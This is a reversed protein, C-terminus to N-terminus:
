KKDDYIESVEARILGDMLRASITEGKSVDKRSKIVDTTSKGRTVIAYGRELTALPSLSNLNRMLLGFAQKNQELEATMNAKLQSQKQQLELKLKEMQHRPDTLKSRTITFAMTLQNLRHLISRSMRQQHVEPNAAKLKQLVLRSLRLETTDVQQQHDQLRHVPSRLRQMLHKQSQALDSVKQRISKLLMSEYRAFSQIWETKDPSLIEAAASPTPARLDAVYDSISFDTEHGIASIIPIKSAYIAYAVQETNFTWLDELSGGGRTVLLLDIPNEKYSNAAEIAKVVQLPSEEGQVLVPLISVEIAPFRRKLVHLVDRVAAGSPSTIIGLHGPMTPVPKKLEKAFLGEEELKRKLKEYARKLVGEGSEEMEEAILQFEGRGEYLSVRGRVIVQHGDRPRFKLHQSRNRFMACRLQAKDDKLTFYIHGSAPRALNSIEGEVYTLPFEEELLYKVQRNLDSVTLIKRNAAELKNDFEGMPRIM